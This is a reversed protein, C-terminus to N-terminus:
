KPAACSGSGGGGCGCGKAGSPIVGSTDGTVAASATSVISSDSSNASVSNSPAVVEIIGSIMGMWCSFKYKGAKTPTFEKVSLQGPTLDIQGDFLSRSIVANTCGSTGTDNIEWRVPVGSVVKFYNPSYGNSSANMKIVQPNSVNTPGTANGGNQSNGTSNTDTGVASSASTTTINNLSPLGLVNLQANINYLAFVFIVIAAVKMFRQTFQPNQSFKVSSFGIALLPGATGLVFFMLILAGQIIKGSLLALSMATITFGCPLLFTLAGMVLPMYKGKFKSEDAVRRTIFRPMTIQFWRLSKVGLMQLALLIMMVSVVIVLISAWNLSLRMTGGIAGLIGGIITFSVLRGFNFMLHPEFKKSASANPSYAELWQKSMSLVLGGVLAACSSLGALLGFAFFTVLASKANVSVLSSLGSKILIFFVAVVIAALGAIKWGENNPTPPAIPADSFSYGQDNFKRNLEKIGPRNISYEVVVTGNRTSAEVSKVGKHKLLEREMLVECSACHMGSVYYTHEQVSHGPRNDGSSLYGMQSIKETVQEPSIQREDFFVVIQGTNRGVAVRDVGTLVELETELRAEDGEQLTRGPPVSYSKQM